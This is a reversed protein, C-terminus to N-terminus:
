RATTAALGSQNRTTATPAPRFLCDNALASLDCRVQNEKHAVLADLAQKVEGTNVDKKEAVDGEAKAEAKKDVETM